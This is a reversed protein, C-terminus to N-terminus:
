VVSKRDKPAFVSVGVESNGFVEEGLCYRNTTGPRREIRIYGKSSLEKLYTHVQSESSSIAAGLAAVSHWCYGRFNSAIIIETALLKSGKSLDSRNILRIKETLIM